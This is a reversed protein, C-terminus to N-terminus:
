SSDTEMDAITPYAPPSTSNGVRKRRGEVSGHKCAKWACPEGAVQLERNPTLFPKRM